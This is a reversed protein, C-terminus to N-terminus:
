RRRPPDHSHDGAGSRDPQPPDFCGPTADGGGEQGAEDGIAAAILRTLIPDYRALQSQRWSDAAVVTAGVLRAGRLVGRVLVPLAQWADPTIWAPQGPDAAPAAASCQLRETTPTDDSAPAPLMSAPPVVAAGASPPVGARPAPLGPEERPGFFGSAKARSLLAATDDTIPPADPGSSAPADDVDTMWGGAARARELSAQLAALSPGSNDPAAGRTRMALDWGHDRVDRVLSVVWAAHDRVKPRAQADAIAAEITALPVEALEGCQAPRVGLAALRQAAPTSQISMIVRERRPRRARGASTDDSTTM